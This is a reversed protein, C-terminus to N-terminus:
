LCYIAQLAQAVYTVALHGTYSETKRLPTRLRPAVCSRSNCECDGCLPCSDYQMRFHMADLLPLTHMGFRQRISAGSAVLAEAQLGHDEGVNDQRCANESSVAKGGRSAYTFTLCELYTRFALSLVKECINHAHGTLAQSDVHIAHVGGVCLGLSSKWYGMSHM